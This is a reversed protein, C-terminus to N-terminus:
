EESAEPQGEGGGKDDDDDDCDDDDFIAFVDKIALALQHPDSGKIASLLARAAALEGEDVPESGAKVQDGFSKENDSALSKASPIGAVILQAMKKHNGSMMMM